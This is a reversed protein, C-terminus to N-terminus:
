WSIDRRHIQNVIEIYFQQYFRPVNIDCPTVMKPDLNDVGNDGLLYKDVEDDSMNAIDSYMPGNEYHQRPAANDGDLNSPYHIIHEAKRGLFKDIGLTPIENQLKM